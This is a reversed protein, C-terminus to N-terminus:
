MTKSIASNSLNHLKGKWMLKEDMFRPSGDSESVFTAPLICPAQRPAPHRPSTWVAWLGDWPLRGPQQRRVGRAVREDEESARKRWGEACARYGQGTFPASGADPGGGAMGEMSSHHAGTAPHSNEVLQHGTSM